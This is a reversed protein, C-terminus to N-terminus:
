MINFVLFNIGKKIVIINLITDIDGIIGLPDSSIAGSNPTIEKDNQITCLGSNNPHNAVIIM